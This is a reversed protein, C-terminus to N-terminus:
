GKNVGTFNDLVKITFDRVEQELLSTRARTEDYTMILISCGQSQLYEYMSLILKELCNRSEKSVPHAIDLYEDKVLKSPMALFYTGQDDKTNKIIKIDHIVFLNDITFHAIGVLRTDNDISTIKIETIIM